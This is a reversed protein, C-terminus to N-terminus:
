TSSFLRDLLGFVSVVFLVDRSLTQPQWATACVSGLASVIERCQQSSFKSYSITLRSGALVVTTILVLLERISSSSTSSFLTATLNMALGRISFQFTEKGFPQAIRGPKMEVEAALHSNDGFGMVEEPQLLIGQQCAGLWCSRIHKWKFVCITGKTGTALWHFLESAREFVVHSWPWSCPTFPM